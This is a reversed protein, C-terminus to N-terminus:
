QRSIVYTHTHTHLHTKKKQMHTHTSPTTHTRTHISTYTQTHAHTHTYATEQSSWVLPIPEAWNTNRHSHTKKTDYRQHHHKVKVRDAWIIRESGWYWVMQTDTGHVNHTHTAPCFQQKVVAETEHFCKWGPCLDAQCWAPSFSHFLHISLLSIISRRLTKLMCTTM